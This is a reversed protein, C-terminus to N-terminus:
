LETVDINDNFNLPRSLDKFIKVTADSIRGLRMENLMGAFEPM